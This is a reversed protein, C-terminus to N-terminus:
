DEKALNEFYERNDWLVREVRAHGNPEEARRDMLDTITIMIERGAREVDKEDALEIVTDPDPNLFYDANAWLFGGVDFLLQPFYGAPFDGTRLISDALFSIRLIDLDTGKVKTGSFSGHPEERVLAYDGM